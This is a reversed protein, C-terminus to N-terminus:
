EHQGILLPESKVVTLDSDIMDLHRECYPLPGDTTPEGDKFVLAYQSAYSYCWDGACCAVRTFYETVYLHCVQGDHNLLMDFRVRQGSPSVDDWQRHSYRYLPAYEIDRDRQAPTRVGKDPARHGMHAYDTVTQSNDKVDAPIRVRALTVM